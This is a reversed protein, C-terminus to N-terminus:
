HLLAKVAILFGGVAAVAVARLLAGGVPAGALRAAGFGYAGILGLGSWTAATFATDQEIVGVAALVFFGCPFAIGFAVAGAEDLLHLFEARQISHRVHTETGIVQSYLEALAAAFATALLSAIVAGTSPPHAALVLVLALGIISGYIVKSVQRSGLHEVVAQRLSRGSGRLENRDARVMGAQKEATM